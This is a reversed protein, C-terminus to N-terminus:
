TFKEKERYVPSIIVFILEGLTYGTVGGMLGVELYVYTHIVIVTNNNL